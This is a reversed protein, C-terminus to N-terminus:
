AELIIEWDDIVYGEKLENNLFADFESETAFKKLKSWWEGRQDHMRILLLCPFTDQGMLLIFNFPLLRNNSGICYVFSIAFM